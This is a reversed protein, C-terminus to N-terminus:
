THLSTPYFPQPAIPAFLDVARSNVHGIIKAPNRLGSLQCAFANLLQHFNKRVTGGLQHAVGTVRIRCEPLRRGPQPIRPLGFQFYQGVGANSIKDCRQPNAQYVIAEYNLFSLFPVKCFLIALSEGIWYETTTGNKLSCSFM